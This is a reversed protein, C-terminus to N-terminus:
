DLRVAACAGRAHAWFLPASVAMAGFEACRERAARFPFRWHGCRSGTGDCTRSRACRMTVIDM